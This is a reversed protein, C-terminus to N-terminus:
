LNEASSLCTWQMRMVQYKRALVRSYWSKSSVFVVWPAINARYCWCFREPLGNCNGEAGNCKEVLSNLAITKMIVECFKHAALIMLLEHQDLMIETFWWLRNPVHLLEPLFGRPNPRLNDWVLDTLDFWKTNVTGPMIHKWEKCCGGLLLLILCIPWPWLM